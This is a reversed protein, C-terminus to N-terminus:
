DPLASAKTIPSHFHPLPIPTPGATACPSPSRPPRTSLPRRDPIPRRPRQKAITTGHRRAVGCTDSCLWRKTTPVGNELHPRVSRPDGLLALINSANVYMFDCFTLYGPERWGLFFRCTDRSAPLGPGLEKARRKATAHFAGSRRNPLSRHKSRSRSM